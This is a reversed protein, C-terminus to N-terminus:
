GLHEAAQHLVADDYAIDDAIFPPPTWGDAILLRYLEIRAQVVAEAATLSRDYLDPDQEGRRLRAEVGDRRQVATHFAWVAGHLRAENSGTM